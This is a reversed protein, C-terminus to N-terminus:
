ERHRRRLGVYAVVLSFAGLFFLANHKSAASFGTFVGSLVLWKRDNSEIWLLLAYAALCVFMALGIDILASAGLWLVLPNALWLGASWLGVRPSFMRSGAAYITVAILLMMLFQVLQATIDDYFLALAFLMENTQPILPYRLYEALTIRHDQIYQKAVALHYVTADYNTPPYLPLVWIPTLLAIAAVTWALRRLFRQKDRLARVVRGALDYWVKYSLLQLCLLVLMVVHVYLFGLFGLALVVYSTCGLGLGTSFAIEDWTSGYAVSYTLRRGLVYCSLALLLMIGFHTLAFAAFEM